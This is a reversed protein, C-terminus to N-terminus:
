VSLLVFPQGQRVRATAPLGVPQGNSDFASLTVSACGPSPHNLVCATVPAGLDGVYVSVHSHVVPFTGTTAPVFGLGENCTPCDIRAVQAGSVAQKPASAIVPRAGSDGAGGPLPGFVVGSGSSSAYQNTVTAGAALDDFSITADAWAAAPRTIAMAVLVLPLVRTLLSGIKTRSM